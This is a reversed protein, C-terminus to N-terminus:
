KRQKKREKGNSRDPGITQVFYVIVREAYIVFVILIICKSRIRLAYFFDLYFGVPERWQSLHIAVRQALVGIELKLFQHIGIENVTHAAECRCKSLPSFRVLAKFVPGFGAIKFESVIDM